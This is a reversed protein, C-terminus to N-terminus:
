HLRKWKIIDDITLGNNIHYIFTPYSVNLEKAWDKACQKKNNYEILRTTRRNRAQQKSNVWRCNSPEYDGNNDIRDITCQGKPLKDNYGNEYAWKKFTLYDNLWEDCMKIGRGGYDVYSQHNPKSTCHKIRIYIAYLREKSRGDIYCWVKNEKHEKEM